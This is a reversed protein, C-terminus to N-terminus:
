WYMRCLALWQMVATATAFLPALVSKKGLQLWERCCDGWCFWQYTQALLCILTGVCFILVSAAMVPRRGYRDAMDGSLLEGLLMGAVFLLLSHQLNVGAAVSLDASLASYAPLLIDLSLATIATLCAYLAISEFAGPARSAPM